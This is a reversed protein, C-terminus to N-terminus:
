NNELAKKLELAGMILCNRRSLALKFKEFLKLNEDLLNSNFKEGRIMSLFNDIIELGELKNKKEICLCLANTTAKLLVCGQMELQISSIIPKSNLSVQISDQCGLEQNPQILIGKRQEKSSFKKLGSLWYISDQYM